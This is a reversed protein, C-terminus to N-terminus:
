LKIDEILSNIIEEFGINVAKVFGYASNEECIIKKDFNYTKITKNNEIFYFNVKIVAYSSDEEFVQYLKLVESRLLYKYEIRKDKSIINKFINSSNFSDILQNYIMNSPSSIWRNKAYEEFLFEKNSYLIATQNFSKNVNPEEIFISDVKKSVEVKNTSFNISYKNQEVLDQKFSCGAFLIAFILISISKIYLKM